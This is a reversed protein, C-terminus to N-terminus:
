REGRYCVVGIPPPSFFLIRKQLLAFKWLTFIQEGFFRIFQSFCGAPHTIQFLRVNMLVAFRFFLLPLKPCLSHLAYDRASM